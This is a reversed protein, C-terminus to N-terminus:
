AQPADEVEMPRGCRDCFRADADNMEGCEPCAKDKVLSAGCQNCFRARRPNATQCQPCPIEGPMAPHAERLGEGIAGAITKVAGSTEEAMYNVTDKAVPAYEQATYRAIAGMYAFHTIALGFPLLPAGIFLCWFLSPERFSNMSSFFNVGGVLLFIVGVALTLPGMIRLIGRVGPHGPDIRHNNSM